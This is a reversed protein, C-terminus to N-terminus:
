KFSSALNAADIQNILEKVMKMSEESGILMDAKRVSNAVGEPNEEILKRLVDPEQLYKKNFGM